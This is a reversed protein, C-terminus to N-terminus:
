PNHQRPFREILVVNLLQMNTGHEGTKNIVLLHTLPAHPPQGPSLFYMSPSLGWSFSKQYVEYFVHELLQPCFSIGLLLLRCPPFPLLFSNMSLLKQLNKCKLLYLINDYSYIIFVLGLIRIM